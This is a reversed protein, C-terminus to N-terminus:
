GNGRGNGHAIKQEHIFEIVRRYRQENREFYYYAFLYLPGFFVLFLVLYKVILTLIYSEMQFLFVNSNLWIIMFIIHVIFIPSFLLCLYLIMRSSVKERNASWVTYFDEVQKPLSPERKIFVYIFWVGLLFLPYIMAADMVFLYSWNFISAFAWLTSLIICVIGSLLM